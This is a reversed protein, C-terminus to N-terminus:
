TPLEVKVVKSIARVQGVMHDLFEASLQFTFVACRAQLDEIQILQRIDLLCIKELSALSKGEFVIQDDRDMIRVNTIEQDRENTIRVSFRIEDNLHLGPSIEGLIQDLESSTFLSDGSTSGGIGGVEKREYSQFVSMDVNPVLPASKLVDEIKSDRAPRIYRAIVTFEIDDVNKTESLVEDIPRFEALQFKSFVIEQYANREYL